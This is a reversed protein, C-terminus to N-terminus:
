RRHYSTHCCNCLLSAVAHQPMQMATLIACQSPETLQLTSRRCSDTLSSSIMSFVFAYVNGFSTRDRLARDLNACLQSSVSLPHSLLTHVCGVSAKGEAVSPRDRGWPVDALRLLPHRHNTTLPCSIPAPISVRVSRSLVLFGIEGSNSMHQHPSALWPFYRVDARADTMTNCSPVLQGRHVCWCMQMRPSSSTSTLPFVSVCPAKLLRAQM